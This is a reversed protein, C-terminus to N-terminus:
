LSHELGISRLRHDASQRHGAAQTEADKEINMYGMDGPKFSFNYICM